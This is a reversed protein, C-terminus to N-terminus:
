LNRGWDTMGDTLGLRRREEPSLDEINPYEGSPTSYPQVSANGDQGFFRSPIENQRQAGLGYVDDPHHPRARTGVHGTPNQSAGPPYIGLDSRHMNQGSDFWFESDAQDQTTLGGPKYHDPVDGAGHAGIALVQALAKKSVSSAGAAAHSRSVGSSAGGAMERPSMFSKASSVADAAVKKALQDAYGPTGGHRVLRRQLVGLSYQELKTPKYNGQRMRQATLLGLAVADAHVKRQSHLLQVRKQAVPALVGVSNRMQKRMGPSAHVYTTRVDGKGYRSKSNNQTAAQPRPAPSQWVPRAKPAQPRAHAGIGGQSGHVGIGASQRDRAAKRRVFGESVPRAM